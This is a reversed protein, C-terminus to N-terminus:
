KNTVDKEEGKFEKAPLKFHLWRKNEKGPSGSKLAHGV